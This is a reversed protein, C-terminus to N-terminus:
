MKHNEYEWAKAEENQMRQRRMTWQNDKNQTQKSADLKSAHSPPEMGGHPLNYIMHSWPANNCSNNQYGLNILHVMWKGLELHRSPGYLQDCVIFPTTKWARLDIINIQFLGLFNFDFSQLWLIELLKLALVLVLYVLFPVM